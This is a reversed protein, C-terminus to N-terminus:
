ISFPYHFWTIILSLNSWVQDETPHPILPSSNSFLVELNWCSGSPQGNGEGFFPFWSCTCNWLSPYHIKNHVHQSQSGLTYVPSRPLQVYLSPQPNTKRPTIRNSGRPHSSKLPWTKNMHVDRAATLSRASLLHCLTQQILKFIIGILETDFFHYCSSILM